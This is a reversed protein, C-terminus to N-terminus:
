SSSASIFLNYYFLFSGLSVFSLVILGFLLFLLKNGFFVLGLGLLIFFIGAFPNILKQYYEFDLVYVKCAEPGSYEAVSM